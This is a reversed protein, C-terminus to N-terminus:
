GRLVVVGALLSLCAMVTLPLRLAPYWGPLGPARLDWVGHIALALALGLLREARLPEPLLLLAWGALTPLMALGITLSRVPERALALAWRAGGLFSLILAAYAGLALAMLDATGPLLSGILPPAMFPLLGLAGYLGVSL